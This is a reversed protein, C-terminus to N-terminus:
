GSRHGFVLFRRLHLCQGDRELRLFRARPKAARLDIRHVEPAGAVTAIVEWSEGDESALVRAGDLRRATSGTRNQLLIGTLRARHALAIEVWPLETTSTHFWGGHEGLVGWHREPADYRNGAGCVSLAGKASLLDGPFPVVGDMPLAEHLRAVVKGVRQFAELDGSAAAKPLLDTGLRRLVADPGEGPHRAATLLSRLAREWRDADAGVRAHLWAAYAPGFTPSGVLRSATEHLFRDEVEVATIRDAMWTWASEVNWRGAGWTDLLEVYEGFLAAREEDDLTEVLKPWASRRLLNWAPAEHEALGDLVLEHWRRWWRADMESREGLEAWELWLGYHTPHHSLAREFLDDAAKPHGESLAKRARRALAAAQTVGERDSFCAQTLILNQWSAGFFSTHLSRKWHLSYAPQWTSEDVKVTYACHGPEGMTAAPIGNAMAAAAGLNSLAGCVGGVEIAMQPDCVFSERFPFYYMAGQVSDALCNHARYPAQWCASVYQRRPWNIRDRLYALSEPSSFRGWQTGRAIFRREWTQLGEFDSNLLGARFSDRYYAYRALMEREDRDTMGTALAFATATAREVPHSALEREASWVKLLFGLVREPRRLPGNDLLDSLWEADDCLEALFAAGGADATLASWTVAGARRELDFALLSDDAPSASAAADELEPVLVLLACAFAIM